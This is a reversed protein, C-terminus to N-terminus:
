CSVLINQKVEINKIDHIVDERNGGLTGDDQDFVALESRMKASLKHIIHGFLLLGMPDGQQVGESTLLM